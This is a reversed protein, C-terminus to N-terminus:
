VWNKPLDGLAGDPLTQIDIAGSCQISAGSILKLAGIGTPSYLVFSSILNLFSRDSRESFAMDVTM